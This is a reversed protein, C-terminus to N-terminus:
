SGPDPSMLVLRGVRRAGEDGLLVIDLPGDPAPDLLLYGDLGRRWGLVGRWRPEGPRAHTPMALGRVRGGADVLVLYAERRLSHQSGGELRLAAPGGSGDDVRTAPELFVTEPGDEFGTVREPLPRRFYVVGQERMLAVAAEVHARRADANDPLVRPDFLGLRVAPESRAVTREMARGWGMWALHSPWLALAALLAVGAGVRRWATRGIQARSLAFLALGGWFLSPWLLYRDAFIQDPHEGFYRLRAIAILAGVAAAFLALGLGIWATRPTDRPTRWAQWASWALWLHGAIGIVLPLPSALAGRPAVWGATARLLTGVPPRSRFSEGLWSPLAPDASGLWAHVWPTASWRLAVVLNELPAFHLNGRVGSDGPLQFLYAWLSLGLAALPIALAAGRVGLLWALVLVAPFAAIGPGFSFAAVTAGLAALALWRAPRADYAARWTALSALAVSAIVLYAHVSEHGHLLIRANAFWLVSLVAVLIAALRGPTTWGPERWASVAPVAVTLLALATGIALQLTQQGGCCHLEFVRILAPVIPRHGNELQLLNEPFPRGLYDILMRFQDLAPQRFGSEAIAALALGVFVVIALALAASLLVIALRSAALPGGRSGAARM